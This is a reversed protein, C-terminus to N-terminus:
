RDGFRGSRIPIRGSPVLRFSRLTSHWRGGDKSRGPSGMGNGGQPMPFRLPEQERWNEVLSVVLPRM